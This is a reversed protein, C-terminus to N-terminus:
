ALLLRTAFTQQWRATNRRQANRANLCIMTTTADTESPGSMARSGSAAPVGTFVHYVTWSRDLEIRRGYHHHMDDAALAGGENEWVEIGEADDQPCRDNPHNEM